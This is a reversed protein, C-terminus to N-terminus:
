CLLTIDYMKHFLSLRTINKRVLLHPLLINTKILSISSTRYYNFCTVRLSKNRTRELSANLSSVPGWISLAYELKSRLLTKYLVVKVSEPTLWFKTKLYVLRRKSNNTVNRHSIQINSGVHYPFWPVQTRFGVAFCKRWYLMRYASDYM